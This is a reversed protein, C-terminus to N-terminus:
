EPHLYDQFHKTKDVPPPTPPPFMQENKTKNQVSLEIVPIKLFFSWYM